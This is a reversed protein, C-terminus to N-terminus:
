KNILNEQFIAKHVDGLSIIGLLKDGNTVPIRRIKKLWMISAAKLAPIDESVTSVSTTMLDGVRKNLTDQYNRELKEFNQANSGENMVESIDPFMHQLIDKESLIGVLCDNEDVVPVGSIKNICMISAIEKVATDPRATKVNTTMIDKVIM